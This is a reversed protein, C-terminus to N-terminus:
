DPDEKSNMQLYLIIMIVIQVKEDLASIGKDLMKAPYDPYVFYSLVRLIM